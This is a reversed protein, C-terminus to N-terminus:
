AILKGANFYPTNDRSFSSSWGVCKHPYERWYDVGVYVRSLFSFFDLCGVMYTLFTVSQAM